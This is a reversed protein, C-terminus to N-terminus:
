RCGQKLAQFEAELEPDADVDFRTAEDDELLEEWAETEAESQEVKRCLHDFRAFDADSSAVGASAAHFSRRAEAARQRAILTHLKQQAESLRVRMADLQRRLRASAGQAAGLQDELAAILKEHDRKRILARRATADDQRGFAERARQLERTAQHRHRDLEKGLLKEQAIVRAASDLTKAVAGEMERIAQRLMTEPNEIGSIIENLNASVIDSIRRFVGM